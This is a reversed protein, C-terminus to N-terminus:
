NFENTPGLLINYSQTGGGRGEGDITGSCTVDKMQTFNANSAKDMQRAFIIAYDTDGCTHAGDYYYYFTSSTIGAPDVPTGKLYPELLTLLTQNTSINGNMGQWERPYFNHDNIYLEFAKQLQNLEDIRRTDRAQKQSDSLSALIVSALMGIIAIVIMLEVLTFARVARVDVRSRLKKYTHM